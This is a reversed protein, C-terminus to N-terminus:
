SATWYIKFPTELLRQEIAYKRTQLDSLKSSDNLEVLDIHLQTLKYYSDEEDWEVFYECNSFDANDDLWYLGKFSETNYGLAVLIFGIIDYKDGDYIPYEGNSINYNWKDERVFVKIKKNMRYKM